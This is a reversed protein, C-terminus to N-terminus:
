SGGERASVPAVMPPRGRGRWRPPQAEQDVLRGRILNAMRWATKYTVGLERELQKASIEGRTSSVLFIAKFWLALSTSSKHFITGTTPHLHAGCVDCSYSPRKAVRHFKRVEECKPCRAHAGDRTYNKRWLYDLCAADDPFERNLDALTYPNDSSKSRNVRGRRPPM